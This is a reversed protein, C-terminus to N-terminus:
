KKIRVVVAYCLPMAYLYHSYKKKFSFPVFIRALFELVYIICNLIIFIVGKLIRLRPVIIELTLITSLLASSFISNSARIYLIEDNKFAQKYWFYTYRLYDHPAGHINFFFPTSIYVIANNKMIRKMENITKESDYVHELIESYIAADFYDDPYEIATASQIKDALSENDPDIGIYNIKANYSYLEQEFPRSGCGVDILKIPDNKALHKLFFNFVHLNNKTLLWSYDWIRPKTRIRIM